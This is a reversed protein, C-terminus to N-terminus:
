PPPPSPTPRSPPKTPKPKPGPDNPTSPLETPTAAAPAPTPTDTVGGGPLWLVQGVSLVVTDLCNVEMIRDVTTGTQISLPSLYDGLKITYPGWGPPQTRVCGPTSSPSPTPTATKTATTTITVSATSTIIAGSTVTPRSTPIPTAALMRIAQADSVFLSEGTTIQELIVQWSYEGPQNAIESGKRSLRYRSGVVPRSVTGLLFADDDVLLQIAFQQTSELPTPWFWDFTVTDNATFETGPAPGLVEITGKAQLTLITGAELPTTQIQPSPSGPRSALVIGIVIAVLLLMGGIIYPVPPRKSPTPAPQQAVEEAAIALDIAAVMEDLTDFRNWTEYRLCNRILRSTEATLGPRDIALLATATQQAAGQRDYLRPRYGTLLEYLIIGLSYINSQKELPEGRVQEPSAYDLIDETEAGDQSTDATASPMIAVGPLSLDILFPKHHDQVIINSSRLDHHIIGTVHAAALADAIQRVLKLATIVSLTDGTEKREALMEALTMGSVYEIAVYPQNHPTVGTENIAAINEHRIQAVQEVRQQFRVALEPAEETDQQLIELFVPQDLNTDRALYLNSAQGQSIQREVTYNNIQQWNDKNKVAM